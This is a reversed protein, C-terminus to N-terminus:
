LMELLRSASGRRAGPRDLGGIASRLDFDGSAPVFPRSQGAVRIALDRDGGRRGCDYELFQIACFAALRSRPWWRLLLFMMGYFLPYGIWPSQMKLPLLESLLPVNAAPLTSRNLGLYNALGAIAVGLRWASSPWRWGGIRLFQWRGTGV